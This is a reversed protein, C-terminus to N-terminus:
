PVTVEATVLALEDIRNPERYGTVQYIVGGEDRVQDGETLLHQTALRIEYQRRRGRKGRATDPTAAVEQISAPVNTEAASGHTTVAGGAADVTRAAPWISVKRRLKYALALSLCTLNYSRALQGYTFSLVTWAVGDADTVVDGPKPKVPDLLAGPLTWLKTAGTYVGGTPSREQVTVPYQFAHTIAKAPSTLRGASTFTVPEPNAILLYDNGFDLTM